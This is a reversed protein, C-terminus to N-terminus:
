TEALIATAARALPGRFSRLPGRGLDLAEDIGRQHAMQVRVPIRVTRRLEKAGISEGRVVLGLGAHSGFRQRARGAAAVGLVTDRTVVLLDDCRAALEDVLPDMTRPLDVVVVDHGRRAASLAERAAFAQLTAPEEGVYWSLVGLRDRRPLAERLARAGIRGTTRCLADWRFGATRELGLVRDMGPGQPDCDIVVADGDRAARQGIAAALTTAGAGGCGGVVGIVRGADSGSDALDALIETLWDASGPLDVVQEAGVQLATRFLEDPVGGRAVVYTAPRREPAIRAMTAALDAGVLVAPARSWGPIAELPTRATVPVVDAAAALPLLTALLDDDDTVLLPTETTIETTDMDVDDGSPSMEM